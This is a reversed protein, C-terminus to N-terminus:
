ERRMLCDLVDKGLTAATNKVWHKGNWIYPLFGYQKCLGPVADRIFQDRCELVLAQVIGSALTKKAGALVSLEHGEVDIKMLDIREINKAKAWHDLTTIKVTETGGHEFKKELSHYTSFPGISLEATGTKSSLGAKYAEMKANKGISQKNRQLLRFNDRNPEFAYISGTPGVADAALVCFCGLNAGIDVYVGGPQLSESVAAYIHEEHIGLLNGIFHENPPLVLKLKSGAKIPVRREQNFLAVDWRALTHLGRNSTLKMLLRYAPILLQSPYKM